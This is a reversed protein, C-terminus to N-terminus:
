GHHEGSYDEVQKIRRAYRDQGSFETELWLKLAAQAEDQGVFRAGLSLVNSDNHLRSLRIIEYPDDSTRGTSDVATIAKVSGYYVVARVGPLRNAAMAEGQGSGGVVVARSEPDRSVQEAAKLIFDPFNDDQDFQTNGCDVPEHGLTVLYQKLSEKLEYGGHDAGLYVKM